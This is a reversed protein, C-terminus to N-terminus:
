PQQQKDDIEAIDHSNSKNHSSIESLYLLNFSVSSKSM